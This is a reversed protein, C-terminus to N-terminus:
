KKSPNILNKTLSLIAEMRKVFYSSDNLIDSVESYKPTNVIGWSLFFDYLERHELALEVKKNVWFLEAKDEPESIDGDEMFSLIAGMRLACNQDVPYELRYLISQALAGIETRISKNKEDNCRTLIETMVTRLVDSTAGSNSFILQHNAEVERQKSYGEMINVPTYIRYKGHTLELKYAPNNNYM